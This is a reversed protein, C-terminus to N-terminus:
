IVLNNINKLTTKEYTFYVGIIIGAFLFAKYEKPINFLKNVLM